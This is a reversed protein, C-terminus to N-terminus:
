NNTKWNYSWKCRIRFWQNCGSCIRCGMSCTRIQPCNKKGLSVNNLFLEASVANTYAWVQVMSDGQLCRGSPNTAQSQILGTTTDIVWKQNAANDCQYVGVENSTGSNWLDMCGSNAVNKFSNDSQHTWLQNKIERM